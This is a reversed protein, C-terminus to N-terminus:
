PQEDVHPSREAQPGLIDPAEDEMTQEASAQAPSRRAPYRCSEGHRSVLTRCRMKWRLRGRPLTRVIPAGLTRNIIPEVVSSRRDRGLYGRCLIPTLREPRMM